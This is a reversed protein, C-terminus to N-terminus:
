TSDSMRATVCGFASCRLRVAYRCSPMTTPGTRIGVGVRDRVGSAARRGVEALEEQLYEGVIPQDVVDDGAPYGPLVIPAQGFHERLESRGALGTRERGDGRGGLLRRGARLVVDGAPRLPAGIGGRSALRLRHVSSSFRNGRNTPPSTARHARASCLAESEDM